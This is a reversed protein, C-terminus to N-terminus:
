KEQRSPSLFLNCRRMKIEIQAPSFYDVLYTIFELPYDKSNIELLGRCILDSVAKAQYTQFPEINM